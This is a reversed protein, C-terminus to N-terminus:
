LAEVKYGPLPAAAIGTHGHPAQEVRFVLGAEPVPTDVEDVFKGLAVRGLHVGGVVPTVEHSARRWAEMTPASPQAAPVLSGHGALEVDTPANPELRSRINSM